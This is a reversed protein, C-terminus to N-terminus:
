GVVRTQDRATELSEIHQPFGNEGILSEAGDVFLETGSMMAAADSALFAVANGVQEPDGSRGENLPVLGAPLAIPWGISDTNRKRTADDIETTFAGPCVANVRIKHPALELATVKMLAVQGAKSAAYAASGANSHTRTGNISAMVVISGGGRKKLHPVTHHLTLYTGFLNVSHTAQWEDPQLDDIPAWTGNMGANAVVVSLDGFRDLTTAVAAAVQESDTVDCCVYEATGGEERIHAAAEKLDDESRASLMVRAGARAMVRGCHEGIGTSGGTIFAVHGSLDIM